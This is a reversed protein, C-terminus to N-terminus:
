PAHTVVETRSHRITQAQAQTQTWTLPTRGHTSVHLIRPDALVRTTQSKVEQELVELYLCSNRMYSPALSM